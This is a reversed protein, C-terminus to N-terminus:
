QISITKLKANIIDLDLYNSMKTNVDMDMLM